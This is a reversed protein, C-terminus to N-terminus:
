SISVRIVSRGWSAKAVSVADDLSGASGVHAYSNSFFGYSIRSVSWSRGSSTSAYFSATLGSRDTLKITKSTM